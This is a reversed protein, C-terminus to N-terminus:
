DTVEKDNIPDYLIAQYYDRLFKAIEEQKECDADNRGKYTEVTATAVINPDIKKVEEDGFVGDVYNVFVGYENSEYIIKMLGPKIATTRTKEKIGFDLDELIQTIDKPKSRFGIEYSISM